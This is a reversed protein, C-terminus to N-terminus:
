KLNLSRFEKHINLIWYFHSLFSFTIVRERVQNCGHGATSCGQSHEHSRCMHPMPVAFNPHVHAPPPQRYRQFLPPQSTPPAGAGSESSGTSCPFSSAVSPAPRSETSAPQSSPPVNFSMINSRNNEQDAFIMDIEMSVNFSIYFFHVVYAIKGHNILYVIFHALEWIHHILM